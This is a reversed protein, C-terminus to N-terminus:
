SAAPAAPAAEAAPEKESVTKIQGAVQAGPGRIQSLLRAAPALALMIVRAIAEQRTPMKLAQEFSVPLGDAIAGKIKVTDKYQAALKPNKLEDELSRSLEAVSSAGWALTTPGIWYPSDDGVQIGLENFVRRTLSNKIVQLRVKKTRMAKRLNYEAQSGLGQISLVVLDRVGEFSQRLAAMEMEKIIKSM